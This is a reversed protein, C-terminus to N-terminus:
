KKLARRATGEVHTVFKEPQGPPAIEFRMKLEDPATFVYTLRFRPRDPRLASLCEIKKGDGSVSLTYEISHGEDDLYLARPPAGGEGPYIVTFDDHEFAARSATARFATFSKRVLVREHLEYTFSLGSASVEGPEGGGGTGTWDGALPRLAQWVRDGEGAAASQGFLPAGLAVM